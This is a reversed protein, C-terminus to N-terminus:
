INARRATSSPDSKSHHVREYYEDFIDDSIVHELGNIVGDEDKDPYMSDEEYGQLLKIRQDVSYGYPM